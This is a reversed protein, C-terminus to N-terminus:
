RWRARLEPLTADRRKRERTAAGLEAKAEPDTIGRKEAVQNVLQTRRSFRDITSREIGAIEFSDGKWAVAYGLEELRRGLRNLFLQQWHPANEKVSAVDIAKWVKEVPDWCV